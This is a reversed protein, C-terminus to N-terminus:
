KFHNIITNGRSNIIKRLMESTKHACSIMFISLGMEDPFWVISEECVGLIDISLWVNFVVEFLLQLTM